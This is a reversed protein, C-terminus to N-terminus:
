KGLSAFLLERYETKPAFYSGLLIMRKDKGADTRDVPVGGSKTIVVTRLESPTIKYVVRDGKELGREKLSKFWTPLGRSVRKRMAEDILGAARADALSERVGTIYQELSIGRLLKLEFVAYKARFMAQALERELAPTRKKGKAIKRFAQATQPDVRVELKAVDIALVTKEVLMHMRSFAGRGLESDNLSPLSAALCVGSWFSLALLTALIRRKQRFLPAASFRM